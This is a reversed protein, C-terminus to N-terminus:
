VAAEDAGSSSNDPMQEIIRECHNVFKADYGRTRLLERVYQHELMRSLVQEASTSVYHKEVVQQDGALFVAQELNLWIFAIYTKRADNVKPESDLKLLSDTAVLNADSSLAVQNASNIMESILAQNQAKSMRTTAEKMDSAVDVSQKSVRYLMLSAIATALAAVASTVAAVVQLGTM